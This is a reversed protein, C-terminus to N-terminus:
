IDYATIVDFAARKRSEPEVISRVVILITHRGSQGILITSGTTKSCDFTGNTLAESVQNIGLGHDIIKREARQTFRYDGLVTVEANEGPLDFEAEDEKIEDELHRPWDAMAAGVASFIVM